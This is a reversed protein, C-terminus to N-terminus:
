RINSVDSNIINCNCDTSITANYAAGPHQGDMFSIGFKGNGLYEEGLIRKGTNSFNKRINSICDQNGICNQNNNNSNSDSQKSSDNCAVIASAALLILLIQKMKKINLKLIKLNYETNKLQKLHFSTVIKRNFYDM